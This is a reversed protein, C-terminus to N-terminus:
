LNDKGSFGVLQAANGVSQSIAEPLFTLIEGIILRLLAFSLIYVPHELTLPCYWVM